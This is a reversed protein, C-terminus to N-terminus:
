KSICERNIIYGTLGRQRTIIESSIHSVLIMPVTLLIHIFGSTSDLRQYIFADMKSVNMSLGTLVIETEM